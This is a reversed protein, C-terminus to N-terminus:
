MWKFLIFNASTPSRVAVFNIWILQVSQSLLLSYFFQMMAFWLGYEPASTSRSILPPPPRWFFKKRGKPAETQDLFLLPARAGRAGGRSGGTDGSTNESGEWVSHRLGSSKWGSNGTKGHLHYAGRLECARIESNSNPHELYQAVPPDVTLLTSIHTM